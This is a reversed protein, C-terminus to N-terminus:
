PLTSWNRAQTKRTRQKPQRHSTGDRGAANADQPRATTPEPAPQGGSKGPDPLTNTMQQTRFTDLYRSLLQAEDLRLKSKQSMMRMWERWQADTYNAPNYFKHCKACKANYLKRAAALEQESLEAAGAAGIAALVALCKFLVLRM